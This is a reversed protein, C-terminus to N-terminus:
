FDDATALSQRWSEPRTPQQLMRLSLGASTALVALTLFAPGYSGTNQRMAGLLTPLLFGGIGGIAGVVGTISGIERRFRLPVLQFVVGNGLGLCMMTLVIIPVAMRLAPLTSIAAYAIAIAFFLRQLM